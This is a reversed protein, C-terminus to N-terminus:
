SLQCALTAQRSSLDTTMSYDGEVRLEPFASTSSSGNWVHCKPSVPIHQEELIRQFHWGKLVFSDPNQFHALIGLVFGAKLRGTTTSQENSIEPERVPWWAVEDGVQKGCSPQVLYAGSIGALM